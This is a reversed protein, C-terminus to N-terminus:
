LPTASRSTRHAVAAGALQESRELRVGIGLHQGQFCVAYLTQESKARYDL